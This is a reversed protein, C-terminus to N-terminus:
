FKNLCLLKFYPFYEFFQGSLIGLWIEFHGSMRYKQDSFTLHGATIEPETDITVHLIALLFSLGAYNVLSKLPFPKTTESIKHSGGISLKRLLQQLKKLYRM